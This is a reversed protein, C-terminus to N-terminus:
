ARESHFMDNWELYRTQAEITLHVLSTVDAAMPIQYKTGAPPVGIIVGKYTFPNMRKSKSTQRILIRRTPNNATLTIWRLGQVANRTKQANTHFNINDYYLDIDFDIDEMVGSTLGPTATDITTSATFKITLANGDWLPFAQRDTSESTMELVDQTETSTKEDIALLDEFASAMPMFCVRLASNANTALFGKALTFRIETFLNTVESMSSCQAGGSEAFSAHRPNTFKSAPLVSEDQIIIPWNTFNATASSVNVGYGIGYNHPQPYERLRQTRFRSM